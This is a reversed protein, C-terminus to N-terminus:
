LKLSQYYDNLKFKEIWIKITEVVKQSQSYLLDFYIPQTYGKRGYQCCTLVFNNRNKPTFLKPSYDYRFNTWKIKNQKKDEKIVKAKADKMATTISSTRQTNTQNTSASGYGLWYNKKGNTQAELIEVLKSKGIVM